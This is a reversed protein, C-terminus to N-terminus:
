IIQILWVNQHPFFIVKQNGYSHIIEKIKSIEINKKENFIPLSVKKYGINLLKKSSVSSASFGLLKEWKKNPFPTHAHILNFKKSHWIGANYNAMQHGIRAGPDVNISMYNKQIKKQNSIKSNLISHWYSKYLFYYIWTNRLIKLAIDGWLQHKIRQFTLKKIKKIFKNKVNM